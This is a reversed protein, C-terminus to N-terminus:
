RMGAIGVIMVLFVLVYLAFMIVTLIGVFRWFSAQRTIAIALCDLDGNSALYTEIGARYNWLLMATYGYLGAMLLYGLAMGIGVGAFAGQAFGASTLAFLAGVCILATGLFGLVAFMTVWPKTSRMAALMTFTAHSTDTGMPMHPAQAMPEPAMYPNM